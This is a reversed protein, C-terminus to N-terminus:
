LLWFSSDAWIDMLSHSVLHPGDTTHPLNARAGFVERRTVSALGLLGRAHSGMCLFMWFLCVRPPLLCAPAQWPSLPFIPLSHQHPCPRQKRHCFDCGPFPTFAVSDDFVTLVTLATKRASLATHETVRPYYKILSIPTVTLNSHTPSSLFAPM